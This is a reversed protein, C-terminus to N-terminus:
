DHQAEDLAAKWKVSDLWLAEAAAEDAPSWKRNGQLRDGMRQGLEDWQHFFESGMKRAVERRDNHYPGAAHLLEEAERLRERFAPLEALATQLDAADRRNPALNLLQTEWTLQKKRATSYLDRVKKLRETWDRGEVEGIVKHWRPSKEMAAQLGLWCGWPFLVVGLLMVPRLLRPGYRAFHLLLGAVAGGIAGGLHGWGSVIPLISIFALLVGTAILSRMQGSVISQKLFRRNLLLWLAEAAILGCIAGSAGACGTQPLLALAMCSGAFGSVLYIVLYSAHGWLWEITEGVTRLAFLNMALHIGGLHVFCATLLRWAEGHLLDIARVSGLDHVLQVLQPPQPVTMLPIGTLYGFWNLGRQFALLLGGGFVLLNLGLIVRNLVPWPTSRLTAEIALRRAERSTGVEKASRVPSAVDQRLEERAADDRRLQEGAPTLTCGAGKGPESATKELYGREWLEVMWFELKEWEIGMERAFLRPYWPEPAAAACENLITEIADLTRETM